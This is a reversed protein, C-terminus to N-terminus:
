TRNAFLAESRSAGERLGLILNELTAAEPDNPHANMAEEAIDAMIRAEKTTFGHEKGNMIIVLAPQGAMDGPYLAFEDDNSAAQFEALFTTVRTHQSAPVDIQRSAM